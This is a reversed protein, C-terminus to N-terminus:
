GGVFVPHSVKIGRVLMEFEEPNPSTAHGIERDILRRKYLAYLSEAFSQMGDECTRVVDALKSDHNEAILKRVIPTSILVEVAPVRRVSHATSKILKQCIIARLNYVLSQRVIPREDEPFLNLVREITQPAISAHVTCFVLHGTDAAQMAARFTEADRMEGVLIVDPDERVFARLATAFDKVNTGIERQNILCKKDTHLFEIPDEITIIHAQRTLNIHELMAAITTSKGSGTTGSVLVLGDNFDAIKAVIPPLHLEEFSPIRRPVIRASVSIGSEQRYVNIRFRQGSDLEYAFDVSGNAIIKHREEASLFNFVRAEFEETPMPQREVIRLTGGIRMRARQGSKLHIDSANLRVAARLFADAEASGGHPHIIEFTTSPRETGAQIPDASQNKKGDNDM